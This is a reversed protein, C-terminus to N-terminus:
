GLSGHSTDNAKYPSRSKKFRMFLSLMLKMQQVNDSYGKYSYPTVFNPSLRRIEDGLSFVFNRPRPMPWPWFPRQWHRPGMQVSKLASFFTHPSTLFTKHFFINEDLLTVFNSSKVTTELM